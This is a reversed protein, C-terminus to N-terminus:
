SAIYERKDKGFGRNSTRRSIVFNKLNAEHLRKLKCCAMEAESIEKM